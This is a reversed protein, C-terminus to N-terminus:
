LPCRGNVQVPGRGKSPTPPRNRLNRYHEWNM